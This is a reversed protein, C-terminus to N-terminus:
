YCVWTFCPWCKLALYIDWSTACHEALENWLNFTEPKFWVTPFVKWKTIRLKHKDCTSYAWAFSILWSMSRALVRNIYFESSFYPQRTCHNIVTWTLKLLLPKNLLLDTLFYSNLLQLLPLLYNEVKIPLFNQLFLRKRNYMWCSYLCSTMTIQITVTIIYSVMAQLYSYKM